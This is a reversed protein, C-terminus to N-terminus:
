TWSGSWNYIAVGNIKRVSLVYWTNNAATFTGAAGSGPTKFSTFAVSVGSGSAGLAVLVDIACDNTPATVTWTFSGSLSVYQYNGNAPDLTTGQTSTYSGISYPTLSYGKTITATNDTTLVTSSTGPFTMTTSDTGALTLSNSISLTKGNTLTLTGTTTSVTLGNYTSATIDGSFALTTSSQTATFTGNNWNIVGGSALFLDAWMLATTGLANGDNAAPSLATATLQVEAASNIAWGLTNAAPLYLGNSPVTSASPIFSPATLPGGAATLNGASHTLTYNGNNFNIVAGSAVFLDAWSVTAAGLAAADNASPQVVADFSYGSSAGAFALADAAHTITVDGNAWNIVGGSKLFLSGWNFSGSGLDIAGSSGPLLSANIAVSALNSLATNAIGSISGPDVWTMASTGGGASALLYGSTGATNPLNFNYTGAADQGQITITGSVAGALKLQGTASGEEGITLAPSVWTLNPSGGFSSLDNFQVYTNVGGPSGSGGPSAWTGDGRWFTTPSASTGSNLNTPPLNGTVGNALNVQAWAPSNASGTNSLYRTATVNKSLLAITNPASGYLLDGQSISNLGTGGSTVALATTLVIGATFTQLATWTNPADLLGLDSAAPTIFVQATGSLDIRAGGATSNLVTTRDLTTGSATYVGHGIERNVGDEIAYTVTEGDLIGGDAFTLFSTVAAGLSITTVTGTTATYVRVINALTISM